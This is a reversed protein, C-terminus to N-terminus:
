SEKPKVFSIVTREVLNDKEDFEWKNSNLNLIVESINAMVEPSIYSQSTEKTTFELDFSWQYKREWQHYSLYVKLIDGGNLMKIEKRM